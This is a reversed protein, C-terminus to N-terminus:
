KEELAARSVWGAGVEVDTLDWLWTKQVSGGLSYPIHDEM